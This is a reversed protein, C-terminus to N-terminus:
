RSFRRPVMLAAGLHALDNFSWSPRPRRWHVCSLPLRPPLLIKTESSAGRWCRCDVSLRPDLIIHTESPPPHNTRLLYAVVVSGAMTGIMRVIHRIRLMFKNRLRFWGLIFESPPLPSRRPHPEVMLMMM